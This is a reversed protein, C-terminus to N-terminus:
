HLHQDGLWPPPLLRLLCGALRRAVVWCGIGFQFLSLGLGWWCGVLVWLSYIHPQCDVFQLHKKYFGVIYSSQLYVCLVTTAQWGRVRGWTVTTSGLDVAVGAM